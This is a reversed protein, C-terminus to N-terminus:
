SSYLGRLKTSWNGSLLLCTTKNARVYKTYAHFCQCVCVSACYGDLCICAYLCFDSANDLKIYLYSLSVPFICANSLCNSWIEQWSCLILMQTNERSPGGYAKRTGTIWHLSVKMSEIYQWPVNFCNKLWISLTFVLALILPICEWTFMSSKWITSRTRM